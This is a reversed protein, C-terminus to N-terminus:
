MKLMIRDLMRHSLIRRLYAALYTATTIYYRPRPDPSDLADILKATVAEPGLEWRDKAGSDDYMRPLLHREYRDRQPSNKWDIWKEFYPLGKERFSTTIPGPELLVVKIGTDHLELRLIDSLAELARKTATYAGRWRLYHFGLTSSCQVIRGSGQKRMVPIVANTLTHWGFLNAEFITRLGDTPLDEVLGNLQHAGNNFLADLTGGTAELVEALGAHISAEDTYDIRPAEFGEDILRDCDSQQRCSAFVRWGRAKLTRAADLGIGSSCGTILICKRMDRSM